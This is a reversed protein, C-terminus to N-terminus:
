HMAQVSALRRITFSANPEPAYSAYGLKRVFHYVLHLAVFGLRNRNIQCMAQTKRALLARRLDEVTRGPFTTVADGVTHRVHSDSGGTSALRLGYALAQAAANSGPWVLGSNYAEVGILTGSVEPARLAKWIAQGSLSEVARAMPHAAIAIGGQAKVRLLTQILPMRPPIAEHVFLALLHGEATTVETGPIVQVGFAPALRQAELCGQVTDHDTIAIVDLHNRSAAELVAQVTVASDHSYTTHIHLDAKGM